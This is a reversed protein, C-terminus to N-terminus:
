TPDKLPVLRVPKQKPAAPTTFTALGPNRPPLVNYGSEKLTKSVANLNMPHTFVYNEWCVCLRYNRWFFPWQRQRQPMTSDPILIIDKNMEEQRGQQLRGQVM